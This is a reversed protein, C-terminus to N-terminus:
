ARAVAHGNGASRAKVREGHRVVLVPCDAKRIISQATSGLLFSGIRGAGHTGAVILDAGWQTAARVVEEAPDGEPTLESTQISAPIRRRIEDLAARAARQEADLVHQAALGADSLYAVPPAVVHVLALAAGHERALEVAVDVANRATEGADFAILIRKFM